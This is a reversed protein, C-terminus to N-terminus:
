GIGVVTVFAGDPLPANAQLWAELSQGGKRAVAEDEFVGFFAGGGGAGSMKAGASGNEHLLELAADMTPTSLSLDSLIDHAHCALTGLEGIRSAGTLRGAEESISGLRELLSETGAMDRNRRDKIGAILAATSGTRPMAGVVLWGKPLNVSSVSPIGTPNPYLLAPRELLSFGTDIGSPTGHFVHELEHAAKWLEPMSAKALREPDTARLLATCFAASSGLGVSMPLNGSITLSHPPIKRGLIGPVAAIANTILGFSRSDMGQLEWGRGNTPTLHLDLFRPVQMGLAPYGYVAAHEGFLLLKGYGRGVVM